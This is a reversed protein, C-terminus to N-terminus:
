LESDLAKLVEQSILRRSFASVDIRHVAFNLVTKIVNKKCLTAVSNVLLDAPNLFSFIEM